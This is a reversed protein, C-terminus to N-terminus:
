KLLSAFAPTEIEPMRELIQKLGRRVEAALRVSEKRLNILQDIPKLGRRVEAALRVEVGFAYEKKLQLKL